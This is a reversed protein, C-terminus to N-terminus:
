RFFKAVTELILEINHFPKKLFGKAGIKIAKTQVDGAATMIVVPASVLRPDKEQIHRFEYGDMDPMMIDLLIVGPLIAMTQLRELAERGNNACTVEYGHASLLKALVMQIDISDDVILVSKKGNTMATM